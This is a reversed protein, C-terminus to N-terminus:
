KRVSKNQAFFKSENYIINLNWAMQYFYIIQTVQHHLSLFRILIIDFIM